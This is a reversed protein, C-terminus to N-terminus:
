FFFFGRFGIGVVDKVTDVRDGDSENVLEGSPQCHLIEQIVDPFTREVRVVERMGQEFVVSAIAEQITKVYPLCPFLVLDVHHPTM